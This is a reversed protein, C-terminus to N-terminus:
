KRFVELDDPLLLNEPKEPCSLDKVELIYPM